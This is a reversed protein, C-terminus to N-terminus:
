RTLWDRNLPKTREAQDAVTFHVPDTNLVYGTPAQTEM